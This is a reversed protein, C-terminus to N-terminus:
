RRSSSPVHGRAGSYTRSGSLLDSVSLSQVFHDSQNGIM